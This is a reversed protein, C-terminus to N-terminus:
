VRVAQAEIYETNSPITMELTVKRQEGDDFAFVGTTSALDTGNDNVATLTIEIDGASGPNHVLPSVEVTQGRASELTGDVMENPNNTVVLPDPDGNGSQVTCGALAASTASALAVRGLFTRRRLEDADM